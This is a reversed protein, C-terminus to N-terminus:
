DYNEPTTGYVVCMSYPKSYFNQGYHSKLTKALEYIETLQIKSARDNIKPINCDYIAKRVAKIDRLQTMRSEEFKDYKETIAAALIHEDEKKLKQTLDEQEIKM